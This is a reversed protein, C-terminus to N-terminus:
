TPEGGNSTRLVSLALLVLKSRHELGRSRCRWRVLATRALDATRDRRPDFMPVSMMRTPSTHRPQASRSFPVSSPEFALAPTAQGPPRQPQRPQTANQKECEHVSLSNQQTRPTKQNTMRALRTAARRTATTQDRRLTQDQSLVFAPPTSLVHLDLPAQDQPM